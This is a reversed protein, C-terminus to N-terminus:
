EREASGKSRMSILKLILLVWPFGHWCLDFWDVAKVLEGSFLMGLKEFLHPPAFPALGLSLCAVIAFSLPLKKFITLRTM